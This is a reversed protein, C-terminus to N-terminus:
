KVGETPPEIAAPNIEDLASYLPESTNHVLYGAGCYSVLLVAASVLLIIWLPSLVPPKATLRKYPEQRHSLQHSYYRRQKRILQYLDDVIAQLQLKGNEFVRFQGEFGSSLCLYSFELLDIYTQPHERLKELIIFFREGGWAEGQFYSLLNNEHWKAEKGWATNQITEDLTACIAYRAVLVEDDSYSRRQAGWIFANVEHVLNAHLENIKPYDSIQRFRSVLSFLASAAAALPNIGHEPIFTKSKYRKQLASLPQGNQTIDKLSQQRSSVVSRNKLLAQAEKSLLRDIDRPTNVQQTM